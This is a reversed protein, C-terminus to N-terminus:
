PPVAITRVVDLNCRTLDSCGRRYGATGSGRGSNRQFLAGHTRAKSGQVIVDYSTTREAVSLMRLRCVRTLGPGDAVQVQSPSPAGSQGVPGMNPLRVDSRRWHHPASEPHGVRAVRHQFM